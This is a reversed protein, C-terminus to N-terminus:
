RGGEASWAAHMERLLGLTGEIVVGAAEPAYPTTDVEYGRRPYEEPVPLYGFWGGVYGGFWTFPFPSAAKIALAIDCFPECPIAALVAPGIQLAHLEVEFVSRGGFLQARRVAMSARKTVWTAAEIEAPPAGRATLAQLRSQADARGAEVAALSPQPLLPLRLSRRRTRVVPAREAVPVATWRGLPAGSEWVRDHRFQVPPVHMSAYVRVAECAVQMGLRRAVRADDTFGEPGPGVNGAAGQAFLCVAGTMAEVTRKLHGPWDASLLRNTPGLTTPHMTYGCVVALPGGDDGDIRLVLVQPDIPGDFNTGTVTRGGPATERRNAAVRSEGAAVGVRAPRMAKQALRAAGAVVDPLAAYYARHAARGEEVWDWDSPPPGAHNHTLSVRVSAPDIRLVSAVARRVAESEEGTLIVLDLDVIAAAERGDDVVLVTAWLDTEVGDPLLHTQAGWGAHPVTLPPTISARGV